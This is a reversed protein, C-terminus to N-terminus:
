QPNIQAKQGQKIITVYQGVYYSANQPQTVKLLNGNPEQITLEVMPVTQQQNNVNAGVGAGILAGAVTALKKGRGKGVQNGLLGGVGAGVLMGTGNVSSTQNNFYNVGIVVASTSTVPISNNLDVNSTACGSLLSVTLAVTLCLKKM